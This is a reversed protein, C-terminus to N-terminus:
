PLGQQSDTGQAASKEALRATANKRAAPESSVNGQEWPQRPSFGALDLGALTASPATAPTPRHANIIDQVLAATASPAGLLIRHRMDEPLEALFADLCTAFDMMFDNRAAEFLVEFTAQPPRDAEAWMQYVAQPDAAEASSGALVHCASAWFDAAEEEGINFANAFKRLDAASM